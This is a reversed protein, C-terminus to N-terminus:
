CIFSCVQKPYTSLEVSSESESDEEEDEDEQSNM